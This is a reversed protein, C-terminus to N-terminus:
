KLTHLTIELQATKKYKRLKDMKGIAQRVFKSIFIEITNATL